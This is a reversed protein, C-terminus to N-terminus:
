ILSGLTDVSIGTLSVLDSALTGAYLLLVRLLVRGGLLWLHLILNLLLHGDGNVVVSVFIDEACHKSKEFLQILATKLQHLSVDFAFESLPLAHLLSLYIYVERKLM